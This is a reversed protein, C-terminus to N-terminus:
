DIFTGYERRGDPYLIYPKKIENDYMVIPSGKILKSLLELTVGAQICMEEKTDEDKEAEMNEVIKNIDDTFRRVIISLQGM